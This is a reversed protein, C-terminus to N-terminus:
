GEVLVALRRPTSFKRIADFELRNEYLFDSLREALQNIAPTVLHAPMEELGIELLYNAM